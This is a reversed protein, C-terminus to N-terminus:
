DQEDYEGDTKRGIRGSEFRVVRKFGHLDIKDRKIPPFHGRRVAHIIEDLQSLVADRRLEREAPNKGLAEQWGKGTGDTGPRIYYAEACASDPALFREWALAYLGLQLNVALDIMGKAPLAGTKYDIIRADGHENRDVRDITGSVLIETEGLELPFPGHKSKRRGFALEFQEAVWGKNADWESQISLFRRLEEKMRAREVAVVGPPVCRLGRHSAREDFASDVAADMAPADDPGIADLERSPHNRFFHELAKHVLDGRTIPELTESPPEPEELKLVYKLFFLLPCDNYSQFQAASWSHIDGFADALAEISETDALVGDHADFQAGMYRQKEIEAGLLVTEFLAANLEQAVSKLVAGHSFACALVERPTAAHEPPPFLEGVLGAREADPLLRQVEQVFPSPFRERGDADAISWSLEIREEAAELVRHFLIMELRAHHERDELLLGRERFQERDQGSFLPDAGRKSPMVGENLGAFLVRRFSLHRLGEPHTIMVGSGTGGRMFRTHVCLDDFWASANAIAVGADGNRARGLGELLARLAASEAPRQDDPFSRLMAAPHLDHLLAILADALTPETRAAALTDASSALWDFRARLATAAARLGPYRREDRSNGGDATLAGEYYNLRELWQKRGGTILAKRVILPAHAPGEAGFRADLWPSSLVALVDEAAWSEVARLVEALFRAVACVAVPREDRLQIPIGAAEFALRLPGAHQELQPVCVAIADSPLNEDVLMRKVSRALYERELQASGCPVFAVGPRLGGPPPPEDISFVHRAAFQPASEPDPEAFREIDPGSFAQTLAAFTSHLLGHLTRQGDDKPDFALSFATTEVHAALSKVLRLESPTFDDFGDLALLDMEALLPPCGNKALVDALWYRGVTDYVSADRLSDQYREYLTALLQHYPSPARQKTLAARFEHPEIAAQKLEAIAKLVQNRFGPTAVSASVGELAGEAALDDLIRQMLRVREFEELKIASEGHSDLLAEVFQPFTAVRKGWAGAHASGPHNAGSHNSGGLLVRETVVRAHAATPTIVFARPWHARILDDFAASRGSRKPGCLIRVRSM